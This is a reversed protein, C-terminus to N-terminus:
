GPEEGPRLSVFESLMNMLGLMEQPVDQEIMADIIATPTVSVSFRQQLTANINALAEKGPLLNFRTAENSWLQDFSEIARQTLTAEHVGSSRTREFMRYSTVMQSTIYARKDEAFLNLLDLAHDQYSADDGSRVARDNVKKKAASDIARPVLLFNEIEKRELIRVFDCFQRCKEVIYQCEDSSRYDRDLIVASLVPAGLTEEMGAKLNKVRDPNFGDVPVVAFDVRNGIAARGLRRAFRGLIQFDKGEVFLVRRTKAVQTLIPNVNSGVMKFVEQLQSPDQIRRARRNTKTILVIDDTEAETIIETSHTAILIDPGLNRLLGLLQRQLESHLYIDPEDILFLSVESSKVLHTLMQAWVQFGFGAWFIERPYRNEPCFMHLRPKEHTTDLEPPRIDMGPWTTQLLARFDEFNDRFHYWINRFNRAAGYTYLSRRATEELYLPEHHEVPGLIPVFGIPCNFQKVFTSPSSAAKGQADMLLLCTGPEPFYLTLINRNSLHFEVTAADTDDYNHFINEEAISIAKIDVSHGLTSRRFAVVPQAKQRRAKRMAADLIRFAALVTSKGANNPGVLINFHRLHITFDRFAKFRHFEVRVFQHRAESM